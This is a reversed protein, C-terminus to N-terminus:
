RNQNIGSPMSSNPPNKMVGWYRKADEEKNDFTKLFVQRDEPTMKDYEGDARVFIERRQTGIQEANKMYGEDMQVPGSGCGVLVAALASLALAKKIM